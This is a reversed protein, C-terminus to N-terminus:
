DADLRKVAATAEQYASQFDQRAQDDRPNFIWMLLKDGATVVKWHEPLLKESKARRQVWNLDRSVRVAARYLDDDSLRQNQAQKWRRDARDLAALDEQPTPPNVWEQFRADLLVALLAIVALTAVAALFPRRYKSVRERLTVTALDRIADERDDYTLWLRDVNMVKLGTLMDDSVNSLAIQGEKPGSDPKVVPDDDRDAATREIFEVGGSVTTSAADATVPESTAVPESPSKEPSIAERLRIMSGIMQSGFYKAGSLDILLNKYQPQAALRKVRDYETQFETSQFGLLDGTPRVILLDGVRSVPWIEHREAVEFDDM